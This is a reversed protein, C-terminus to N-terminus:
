NTSFHQLKNSYVPHGFISRQSYILFLTNLSDELLVARVSLEMHDNFITTDDM